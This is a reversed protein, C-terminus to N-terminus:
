LLYVAEFPADEVNYFRQEIIIESGFDLIRGKIHVGILPIRKEEGKVIGTLTSKIM